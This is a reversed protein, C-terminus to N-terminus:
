AFLYGNQKLDFKNFRKRLWAFVPKPLNFTPHNADLRKLIEEDSFDQRESIERIWRKDDFLLEETDVMSEIATPLSPPPVPIGIHPAPM